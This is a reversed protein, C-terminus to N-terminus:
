VKKMRENILTVSTDRRFTWFAVFWFYIKHEDLEGSIDSILFLFSYQKFSLIVHEDM